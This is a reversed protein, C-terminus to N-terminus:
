VGLRLLCRVAFKLEDLVPLRSGARLQTKRYITWVKAGMPSALHCAEWWAQFLIENLGTQEFLKLDLNSDSIKVLWKEAIDLEALDDVPTASSLKRHIAREVQSPELELQGFLRNQIQETANKQHTNLRRGVQQDHLRYDLLPTPLNAFRYRNMLRVWLEYDEVYGCEEDYRTGDAFVEAKMLVTPHAFPPSFLLKAKANEDNLPYSWLGHTTGFYNVWCGCISIDPNDELFTLQRTLREPHSIDDADMRAIYKGTALDLGTNLAGAVGKRRQNQVLRIRSDTQRNIIDVSSDTSGDDIIILEWHQWTQHLISSISSALYAQGNFVPMIVSIKEQLLSSMKLDTQETRQDHWSLGAKRYYILPKSM